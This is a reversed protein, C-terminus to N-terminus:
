GGVWMKLGEYLILNGNAGAILIWPYFLISSTPFVLNVIEFYLENKICVVLEILTFILM